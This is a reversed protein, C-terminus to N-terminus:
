AGAASRAFPAARLQDLVADCALGDAFTPAGPPTVGEAVADRVVEAFRRMPALHRDDDGAPIDITDVEGDATRVVVREDAFVDVVAETAFVTMRPALTAVAVFGSDIAVTAGSDLLLSASLGDEATCTHPTGDTDPREAVDIRLLAQVGTVEAGFVYRV